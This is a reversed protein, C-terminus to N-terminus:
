KKKKIFSSHFCKRNTNLFDNFTDNVNNNGFINDWQERSLHLQFEAIINKNINRIYAPEAKSIPLPFNNLTILQADHDSLGNICPKIAYDRRNDILINDILTASNNTTGTPFYVTDILNYTGLLYDLQKKKNNHITSCSVAM